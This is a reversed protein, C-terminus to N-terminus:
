RRRLMINAQSDSKYDIQGILFFCSGRASIAGAFKSAAVAKTKRSSEWNIRDEASAGDDPARRIQFLIFSKNNM